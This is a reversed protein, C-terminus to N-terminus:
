ATSVSLLEFSIDLRLALFDTPVSQRARATWGKLSHGLAVLQRKHRCVEKCEGLHGWSPVGNPGRLLLGRTRTVSLRM